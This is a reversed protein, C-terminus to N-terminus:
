PLKIFRATVIRGACVTSLLYCGAALGSTDLISYGYQAGDLSLSQSEAAVRGQEDLVKVAIPREGGLLAIHLQGGVPNPFVTLQSPSHHADKFEPKMPTEIDGGDNVAMGDICIVLNSSSWAQSGNADTVRVRVYFNDNYLGNVVLLFSTQPHLNWSSESTLRTEWRFTYPPLGGYAAANCYTIGDCQASSPTALAVSVATFPISCDFRAPIVNFVGYGEGDPRIDADPILVISRGALCSIQSEGNHVYGQVMIDRMARYEQNQQAIGSITRDLMQQESIAILARNLNLRGKRILLFLSGVPDTNNLLVSKLELAVLGPEEKSRILLNSCAASYLLGIGGAVLPAAFSTGSARLFGATKSCGSWAMNM